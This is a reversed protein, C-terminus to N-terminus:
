LKRTYDFFRNVEFLFKESGCTNGEVSFHIIVRRPYKDKSFAIALVPHRPEKDFIHVRISYLSPIFREDALILEIGEGIGIFGSAPAM